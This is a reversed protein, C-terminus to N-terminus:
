QGPSPPQKAAEKATGKATDKASASAQRDRAAMLEKEIKAREEPSITATDRGQPLENVPLYGGPERHSPAEASTPAQLDAIPTSCASLTLAGCVAM